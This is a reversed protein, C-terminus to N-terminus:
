CLTFLITQLPHETRRNQYRWIAYHHTQFFLSFCIPVWNTSFGRCTSRLCASLTLRNPKSTVKFRWRTKYILQLTSKEGSFRDLNVFVALFHPRHNKRGSLRRNQAGNARKLGRAPIECIGGNKM